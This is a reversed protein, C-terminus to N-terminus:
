NAIFSLLYQARPQLAAPVMNPLSKAFDRHSRLIFVFLAATLPIAAIWRVVDPLWLALM